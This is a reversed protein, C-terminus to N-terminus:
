SVKVSENFPTPDRDFYTGRIMLPKLIGFESWRRDTYGYMDWEQNEELTLRVRVGTGTKMGSSQCCGDLHTYTLGGFYPQVSFAQAQDIFVGSIFISLFISFLCKM